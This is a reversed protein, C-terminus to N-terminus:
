AAHVVVLEVLPGEHRLTTGHRAVLKTRAKLDGEEVVYGGHRQMDSTIVTESPYGEGWQHLNGSQRMIGKAAEMVEMVAAM